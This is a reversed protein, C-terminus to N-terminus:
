AVALGLEGEVCVKLLDYGLIDSAHEFLEKAKPVENVVDQLCQVPAQQVTEALNCCQRMWADHQPKLDIM